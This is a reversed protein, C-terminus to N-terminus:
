FFNQPPLFSYKKGEGSIGGQVQADGQCGIGAAGNEVSGGQGRRFSQYLLANRVYENAEAFADWRGSNGQETGM